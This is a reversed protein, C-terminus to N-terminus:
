GSWMLAPTKTRRLCASFSPCQRQKPCHQPPREEGQSRHQGEGQSRHQGEGQSRRQGEGQSRRQGGEQSRRQGEGQSRRQGEGQSRRQGEGQSRHQELSSHQEWLKFVCAGKCLLVNTSGLSGHEESV